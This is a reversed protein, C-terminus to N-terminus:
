KSGYTGRTDAVIVEGVEKLKSNKRRKNLQKLYEKENVPITVTKGNKWGSLEIANM